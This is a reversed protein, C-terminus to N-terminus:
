AVCGVDQLMGCHLAYIHARGIELRDPVVIKKCKSCKFTIKFELSIGYQRYERNAIVLEM